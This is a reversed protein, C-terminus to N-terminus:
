LRSESALEGSGNYRRVVNASGDFDADVVQVVVSGPRYIEVMDARADGNRDTWVVVPVPGNSFRALQVVPGRGEGAARLSSAAVGAVGELGRFWAARPSLWDGQLEAARPMAPMDRSPPSWDQAVLAAPALATVALVIQSLLRARAM